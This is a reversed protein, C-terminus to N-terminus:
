ATVTLLLSVGGENDLIPNDFFFFTYSEAGTLTDPSYGARAAAYGNYCVNDGGTFLESTDGDKIYWFLNRAGSRLSPAPNNCDAPSPDGWPSWCQYFRGAPMTITIINSPSFGTVTVGVDMIESTSDTCNTISGIDVEIQVAEGCAGVQISGLGAGADEVADDEDREDLFSRFATKCEAVGSSDSRHHIEVTDQDLRVAELFSASLGAPYIAGVPGALTLREEADALAAETNIIEGAALESRFMFHTRGSIPGGTYEYGIKKIDIYDNAAGTARALVLDDNFSPLWVPQTRGGLRYLLSRFESHEQRGRMLWQHMQVTFARDAEDALYPIGIDNDLMVAKRIFSLDLNERRNPPTLIIARGLYTAAWSGVAYDNEEAVTFTITSQGVRSTINALATEDSLRARRLPHVTTGAGWDMTLASTSIQVANQATIEVVEYTFADPGLVLAYGDTLFERYTNDIPLNNQGIVRDATTVAKDHFLPLMFEESALRHLFLDFYSRTQDVPNFTIEFERRPSLRLMRRQETGNNSDMLGSLWALREIIGQAWNPRITWTPIAPLPM